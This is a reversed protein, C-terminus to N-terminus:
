GFDRFCRVGGVSGALSALAAAAASRRSPLSVGGLQFRPLVSAEAAAEARGAMWAAAQLRRRYAVGGSGRGVVQAGPPPSSVDDSAV